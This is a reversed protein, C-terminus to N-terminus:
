DGSAPTIRDTQPEPLAEFRSEALAVLDDFSGAFLNEDSAAVDGKTRNTIGKYRSGTSTYQWITWGPWGNPLDISGGSVDDVYRALFLPYSTFDTSGGTCTKWWNANTYIAPVRGTLGTVTDLYASVWRQMQKPTLGWCSNTGDSAAYPNFELDLLPPLTWGGDVRGRGLEGLSAVFYEAQKVATSTNPKAFHYAGRILGAAKATTYQNALRASTYTDGETAKIYVFRAGRAYAKRFSVGHQYASVDLGPVTQDPLASGASTFPAAAAVPPSGARSPGPDQLVTSGAVGLVILGAILAAARGHPM